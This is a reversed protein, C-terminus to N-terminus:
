VAASSQVACTYIRVGEAIARLLLRAEAPPSLSSPDWIAAVSQSISRHAVCPRANWEMLQITRASPCLAASPKAQGYGLLNGLHVAAADPDLRGQSPFLPCDKVQLKGHLHWM